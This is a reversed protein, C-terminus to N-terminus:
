VVHCLRATRRRACRIGASFQKGVQLQQAGGQQKAHPKKSVGVLPGLDLSLGSGKKGEAAAAAPAKKQPKGM